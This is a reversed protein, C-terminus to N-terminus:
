LSKKMWIHPCGEVDDIDSFETFGLTQYSVIIRRFIHMFHEQFRCLERGKEKEIQKKPINSKKALHLKYNDSNYVLQCRHKSIPLNDLFKVANKLLLLSFYVCLSPFQVPSM